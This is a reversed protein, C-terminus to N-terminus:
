APAIRRAVDALAPWGPSEQVCRAFLWLLLRELDLELLDSMRRALTRPDAQLREYCNLLHQLADYTPDGVYPKPDIMLWPEREASLVNEAHLDTCLLVNRDSSAPLARLLAIGERALGSDLNVPGAAAKREFGDAWTDCMEQLPRFPHGAPPEHRLRLLLAAIVTDQEPEPRSALTSGPVCRELLLAATGDLEEAAHVLVAGQGNWARLGDAEDRAEEHSWALKLVLDDGAEARAPAVWATQGGPQFPEGVDLSWRQQFHEIAAPLTTLWARRHADGERTVAEVLRHPLAFSPVGLLTV